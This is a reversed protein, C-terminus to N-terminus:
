ELPQLGKIIRFVCLENEARDGDGFYIVQSDEEPLLTVAEIPPYAPVSAYRKDYLKREPWRSYTFTSFQYPLPTGIREQVALMKEKIYLLAEQFTSIVHPASDTCDGFQCKRVQITYPM